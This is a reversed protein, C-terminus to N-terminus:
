GAPGAPARLSRYRTASWRLHERMAKAAGDADGADVRDAILRHFEQAKKLGDPIRNTLRRSERLPAEISKMIAHAIQNGSLRMVLDHFQVDLELYADPDEAAAMKELVERLNARGVDDVTRAAQWAMESELAIRVATIEDFIRDAHDEIALRAAILDSDLVNWDEKPQVVTGVGRQTRVVGKEQLVKLAERMSLRSVGYAEALASEAPLSSGAPLENSVIRQVLSTAVQQWLPARRGVNHPQDM